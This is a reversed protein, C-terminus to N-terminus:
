KKFNKLAEDIKAQADKLVKDVPTKGLFAAQISDNIIKYVQGNDRTTLESDAYQLQDKAVLAQPFESTYKKYVSVNYADEMPAVYGSDMSWKAAREPTTMWRVFEYSAKEKKEDTKFIYLNGGGTPAAYQKGAPLFAVGFDDKMNSKVFTLSGTSHIMMATKGAAFETPVSGWKVISDPMVKDEKALKIWYNLADKTAPTDFQVKTGTEDFIRRSGEMQQMQFGQFIWRPDDTPIKIGYEIVQGSADRKTLKKAADELEDWNSPAKNPDLGVAKFKTKNYYLVPTSRQYPISWIKEYMKSSAMFAPFFNKVYADGDKDAKLFQDLPVIANMDRLTLIDTSLLVAVDPKDGGKVAAQVKTMTQGYDGSYIPEVKINPHSDNFEKVYTDMIKALPGAVGVPYYYKLHVTEQNPASEKNNNSNNSTPASSPGCGVLTSATTFVLLSLAVSRKM